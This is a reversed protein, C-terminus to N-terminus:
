CSVGLKSESVVRLSARCSREEMGMKAKADAAAGIAGAFAFASSGAANAIGGCVLSVDQGRPLTANLKNGSAPDYELRAVPSNPM